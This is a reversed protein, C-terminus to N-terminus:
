SDKKGLLFMKQLFRFNYLVIVLFLCSNAVGSITISQQM